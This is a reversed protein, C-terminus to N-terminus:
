IMERRSATGDRGSSFSHPRGTMKGNGGSNQSNMLAFLFIGIILVSLVPLMYTLFWNEKPVDRMVPDIEYDAMLIEIEKVDSVYAVRSRGDNLYVKVAGTPTEKNPQIEVHSVRKGDLDALLEAKTYVDEKESLTSIFLTLGLLILIVIFYTYLSKGNKNM